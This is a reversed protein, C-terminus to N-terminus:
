RRDGTRGAAPRRGRFSRRHNQEVVFQGGGARRHTTKPTVPARGGPPRSLSAGVAEIRGDRILIEAPAGADPRVNTVLLDTM